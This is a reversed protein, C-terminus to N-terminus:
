PWEVVPVAAFENGIQELDLGWRIVEPLLDQTPGLAVWEENLFHHPHEDISVENFLHVTPPDGLTLDRAEVHRLCQM